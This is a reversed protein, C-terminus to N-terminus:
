APSASIEGGAGPVLGLNADLLGIDYSEDELIRIDCALAIELGTGLCTGNIAAIFPATPEGRHPRSM